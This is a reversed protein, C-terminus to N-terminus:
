EEDEEEEDTEMEEEEEGQGQLVAGGGGGAGEHRMQQMRRDDKEVNDLVIRALQKVREYPRDDVVVQHLLPEGRESRILNCYKDPYM